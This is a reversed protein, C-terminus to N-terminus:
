ETAQRTKASARAFGEFHRVAERGVKLLHQRNWYAGLPVALMPVARGVTPFLGRKLMAKSLGIALPPAARKWAGVGEIYGLLEVLEDKSREPPLHGQYLASMDCLLSWELWWMAALDAPISLLGFFGGFGGVTGALQTKRHILREAFDRNSEHPHHRKLRGVRERARQMEQSLLFELPSRGAARLRQFLDSRSFMQGGFFYVTPFCLLFRM